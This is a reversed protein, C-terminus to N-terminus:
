SHRIYLYYFHFEYLDSNVLSVPVLTEAVRLLHGVCDYIAHSQICHNLFYGLSSTSLLLHIEFIELQRQFGWTGFVARCAAERGPSMELPLRLEM